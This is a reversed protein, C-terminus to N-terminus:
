QSRDCTEASASMGFLGGVGSLQNVQEHIAQAVSTLGRM